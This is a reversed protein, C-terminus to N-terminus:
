SSLLPFHDAITCQHILPLLRTLFLWDCSCRTSQVPRLDCGVARHRSNAGMVPSFHLRSLVGAHSTHTHTHCHPLKHSPYATSTHSHTNPHLLECTLNKKKKQCHWGVWCQECSSEWGVEGDRCLCFCGLKHVDDSGGVHPVNSRGAGYWTAAGSSHRGGTSDAAVWIGSSKGAVAM